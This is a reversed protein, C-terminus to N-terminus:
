EMGCDLTAVLAHVYDSLVLGDLQINVDTHCRVDSQLVYGSYGLCDELIEVLLEDTVRTYELSDEKDPVYQQEM